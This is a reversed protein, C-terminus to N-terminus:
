VIITANEWHEEMGVDIYVIDQRTFKAFLYDKHKPLIWKAHCSRYFNYKTDGNTYMLSIVLHFHKIYGPDAHYLSM